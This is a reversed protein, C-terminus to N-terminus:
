EQHFKRFAFALLILAYVVGIGVITYMLGNASTTAANFIRVLVGRESHNIEGNMYVVLYTMAGGAIFIYAIKLFTPVETGKRETIWGDAYEHLENQKDDSM